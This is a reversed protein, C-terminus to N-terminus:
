ERSILIKNIQKINMNEYNIICLYLINLSTHKIPKTYSMQSFRM